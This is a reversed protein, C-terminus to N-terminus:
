QYLFFFTRSQPKAPSRLCAIEFAKSSKIFRMVLGNLQGPCKEQEKSKSPSSDSM